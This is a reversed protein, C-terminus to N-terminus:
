SQIVYFIEGKDGKRFLIQGDHLVVQTMAKAIKGLAQPEVGKFIDMSQLLQVRKKESQYNNYAM